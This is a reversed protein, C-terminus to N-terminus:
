ANDDKAEKNKANGLRMLVVTINDIGGAANAADVLSSAIADGDYTGNEAIGASLMFRIDDAEVYGSLGDSCLM